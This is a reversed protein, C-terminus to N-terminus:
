SLRNKILYMKSEAFYIGSREHIFDRIMTFEEQSMQIDAEATILM